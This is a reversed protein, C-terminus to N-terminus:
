PNIQQKACTELCSNNPVAQSQLITHYLFLILFFIQRTKSATHKQSLTPLVAGGGNWEMGRSRARLGAEAVVAVVEGRQTGHLHPDEAVDHVPDLDPLVLTRMLLLLVIPSSSSFAVVVVTAM